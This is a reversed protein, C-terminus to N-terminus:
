YHRPRYIYIYIYMYTYIYAYIFREPTSRKLCSCLADSVHASSLRCAAVCQLVSCCVAVCQLVRCCAHRVDRSAHACPVPTTTHCHSLTNCHTATLQLSNCHTATPQLTYSTTERSRHLPEKVFSMPRKQM